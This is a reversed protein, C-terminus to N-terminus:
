ELYTMPNVPEGDKTMKFYINCGEVSYYKTPTGACGILQGTTLYQGEYVKIDHVQGYTLSYGNLNLTVPAKDELVLRKDGTKCDKLLTLTAPTTVKKLATRAQAFTLYEKTEGNVTISAANIVDDARGIGQLVFVCVMMLLLCKMLCGIKM